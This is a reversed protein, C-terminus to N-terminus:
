GLPGASSTRKQKLEPPRAKRAHQVECPVWALVRGPLLSRVPAKESAVIPRQARMHLWPRGWPGWGARISGTPMGIATASAPGPGRARLNGGVVAGPGELQGGGRGPAPSANRGACHPVMPGFAFLARSGASWGDGVRILFSARLLCLQYPRM